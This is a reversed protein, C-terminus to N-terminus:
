STASSSVSPQYTETPSPAPTYQQSTALTDTASNSATQTTDTPTQGPLAASQDGTAAATPDVGTGGLLGGGVLGPDLLSMVERSPLEAAAQNELEEASLNQPAQNM